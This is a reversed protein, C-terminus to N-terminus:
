GQGPTEDEEEDHKGEPATVTAKLEELAKTLWARYAQFPAPLAELAHEVFQPDAAAAEIEDLINDPMRAVMSGVYAEPNWGAKAWGQIEGIFPRLHVLWPAKSLDVPPGEPKVLKPGAPQAGAPPLAAPQGDKPGPLYAELVRTVPPVLADLVPRFGEDPNAVEMGLKFGERMTDALDKVMERGGGGGGDGKILAAIQMGVELPDKGEKTEAAKGVLATVLNNVMLTQSDVLTKMGALQGTLMATQPDMSRTPHEPLTGPAVGGAKTWKGKFQAAVRVIERKLIKGKDGMFLVVYTGGGYEERVLEFSFEEVPMRDIFDMTKKQPDYSCLMVSEAEDRMAETLEILSGMRESVEVAGADLAEQDEDEQTAPRAKPKGKPM